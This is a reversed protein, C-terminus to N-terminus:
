AAHGLPMPQRAKRLGFYELEALAGVAVAQVIVFASGLTNPTVWELWLLLISEAVWVGNCAIVSWVAARTPSPRSGLWAVVAAFPLLVAGATRLLAEPLGLLPGLMGAGLLMLLGTALSAAADALLVRRLFLTHDRTKMALEKIPGLAMMPQPDFPYHM